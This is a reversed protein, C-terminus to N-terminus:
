AGCGELELLFRKWRLGASFGGLGRTSVVRHCPIIVPVPNLSLARGVARFGKTGLTRALEGYTVTTGYPILRVRELVGRVFDSVPLDVDVSGFNVRGGRFYARLLEMVEYSVYESPMAKGLVVKVVKKGKFLM